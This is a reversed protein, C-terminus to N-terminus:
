EEMWEKWALRNYEDQLTQQQAQLEGIWANRAYWAPTGVSDIYRDVEEESAFSSAERQQREIETKAAELETQRARETNSLTM